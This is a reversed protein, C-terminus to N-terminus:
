GGAAEAAPLPEPVRNKVPPISQLYTFIAALDADTFNKYMPIPMPPLIKRGRGMHRGTRITQTFTAQTWKGLGTERDPTLNATFSVGWPGSFATNTPSAASLWGIPITAPALIPMSQPHGSLMRSMDPAPGTPGERWPTHCDNCGAVTVLYKGRALKDAEGDDGHAPCIGLTATALALLTAARMTQTSRNM